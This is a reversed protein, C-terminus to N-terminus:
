CFGTHHSFITVAEQQQM